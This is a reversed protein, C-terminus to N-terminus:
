FTGRLVVRGVGLGLEVEPEQKAPAEEDDADGALVLGLIGTGVGAIAVGFAINSVWALTTADDLDSQQEPDCLEGPCRRKLEKGQDIALLGTVSGVVGGVGAVAFGVVTLVLATGDNSAPDRIVAADPQAYRETSGVEASENAIPELAIELPPNEGSKVQVRVSRGTYGPAAAAVEHEGPDLLLLDTDSPPVRAGDVTIAAANPSVKLAVRAVFQESRALAEQTSRRLEDTLPNRNDALAARLHRTAEVYRRNEYLTIGMGRLTRANPQLAHAAEFLALAENWNGLQYERLAEQITRRYDGTQAASREARQASASAAVLLLAACM